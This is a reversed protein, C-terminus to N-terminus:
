VDARHARRLASFLLDPASGLLWLAEVLHNERGLGGKYTSVLGPAGGNPMLDRLVKAFKM